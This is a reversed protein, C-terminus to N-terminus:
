LPTRRDRAGQNVDAKSNLLTSCCEGHGKQAAIVLPSFGASTAKWGAARAHVLRSAIESCGTRGATYLPTQGDKTAVDPSAKAVLQSRVEKEKQM